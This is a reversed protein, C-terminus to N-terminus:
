EAFAKGQVINMGDRYLMPVKFNQGIEELFGIEVLRGIADELGGDSLSLLESLSERNHESRGNKFKEVLAVADGAEAILTDEVREESLRVLARRFSDSEIVPTGAQYERADRDERRIQAERAKMVLDILNRPPKVHNGDRIRSMIWNWTTPKREGADIQPPFVANFIEDNGVDAAGLRTLFDGSEKLRECLLNLLDDEDWVIETKRANIHTLNVFGGAIVKRFLDRRVFLKLRIQEFEMLDLYARLLARLAPVEVTPFGQFAEDLRDLIVWVTYGLEGVCTNLLRLADEHSVELNQPDNDSGFEFRPTVIPIGTESMTVRVEAAQPNFVRRLSNMLRGFITQPTDDNARLGTRELLQHLAKFRPSADEGAINLAWNGILSLFYTKWVSRYQGETLPAEHVLRQFVPNGTPNFATVVETNELEKLQRYRRELIRFIATKGTGKDGAVVDIRDEVLARFAETEVFYSELAEDFEAVSNGLNLVALMERMTM